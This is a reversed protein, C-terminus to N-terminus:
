PCHETVPLTTRQPAYAPQRSDEVSGADTAAAALNLNAPTNEADLFAQRPLGDVGSFSQCESFLDHWPLRCINGLAPAVGDTRCAFLFLFFAGDFLCAIDGFRRLNIQCLYQEISLDNRPQLKLLQHCVEGATGDYVQDLTAIFRHPSILGREFPPTLRQLLTKLDTTRGHGWIQGQVSDVLSFFCSLTTGHPVTINAGCFVLLREDRYRLCAVLERVVIKLSVGCCERLDRLQQALMEVQVNSTVGVIVTAARVRSAEFFLDDYNEFLHWQNSLPPTGELVSRLTLFLRQDETHAPQPKSCEIRTLGFGGPQVDLEFAQASFVGRYSHWYNVQYHIGGDSRYLQALGSLYENLHILETHLTPAQGHCLVLLTCDRQRLWAATSECWRQLHLIGLGQWSIVPLMLVIPSGRAVAARNLELPLSQLALRTDAEPVEFLRLEFPGLYKDLKAVVQWPDQACCVLTASRVEELAAFFQRGLIEADGMQDISLWYLGGQHLLM